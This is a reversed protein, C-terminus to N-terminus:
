RATRTANDMQEINLKVGVQAWMQQVTSLIATDDASGALAM